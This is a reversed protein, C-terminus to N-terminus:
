TNDGDQKDSAFIDNFLTEDDEDEYEPRSVRLKEIEEEYLKCYSNRINLMKCLHGFFWITIYRVIGDVDKFAPDPEPIPRTNEWRRVWVGFPVGELAADGDDKKQAPKLNMSGLVNNLAAVNKDIPKGLATDRNIMSELLCVQKYLAEEAPDTVNKGETWRAYRRELEEYFDLTFGTGWFELIEQPVPKAEAEEAGNPENGNVAPQKVEKDEYSDAALMSEEALTDDYTKDIYRIINTRGIYNRIRSHVGASREVMDYISDHWYLDLKMCMRRMAARDDELTMKYHNYLKDVCDSCMPLYGSGRYMPSHSVPFYGKQRSYATGCRCCYFKQNGLPKPESAKELKRRTPSGAM